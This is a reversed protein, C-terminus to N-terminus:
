GRVMARGRSSRLERARLARMRRRYPRLDIDGRQQTQLQSPMIELTEPLASPDILVEDEVSGGLHRGVHCIIGAAPVEATVVCGLLRKQAELLCRDDSPHFKERFLEWRLAEIAQPHDQAFHNAHKFSKSWSCRRAEVDVDGAISLGRYLKLASGDYPPLLLRALRTQLEVPLGGWVNDLWLAVCALRMLPRVQANSIRIALELMGAVKTWDGIENVQFVAEGFDREDAALDAVAIAVFRMEATTQRIPSDTLM